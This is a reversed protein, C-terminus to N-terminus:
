PARTVKFATASGDSNSVVYHYKSIVVARSNQESNRSCGLTAGPTPASPGYAGAPRFSCFIDIGVFLLNSNPHVILNRTQRDSPGALATSVSAIGLGLILGLLLNRM